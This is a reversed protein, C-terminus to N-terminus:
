ESASNRCGTLISTRPPKSRLPVGGVWLWRRITKREAGLAAAIASISMGAARLQAAEEYRSQRCGYADHSRRRATTMKSAIPLCAVIDNAPEANFENLQKAARQIAGQHRDVVARVADGLNRLLHLRDPLRSRMQRVRVFGM